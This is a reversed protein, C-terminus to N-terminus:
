HPDKATARQLDFVNYWAQCGAGAEESWAQTTGPIQNKSPISCKAGSPIHKSM